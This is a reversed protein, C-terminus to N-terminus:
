LMKKLSNNFEKEFDKRSIGMSMMIEALKEKEQLALKNLALVCLYIKSMNELYNDENIGIMEKNLKTTGNDLFEITYIVKM